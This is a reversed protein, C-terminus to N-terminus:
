QENEVLVDRLVRAFHQANARDILTHHTGPVRCVKLPGSVFRKWFPELTLNSDGVLFLVVRGNYRSPRYQQVLTTFYDDHPVSGPDRVLHRQAAWLKGAMFRVRDKVPLASWRHFHLRLRHRFFPLLVQVRLHWPLRFFPETDLLALTAVSAGNRALAQAVAFAIWGGASNGIIHYPGDPQRSRVESAYHGAMEEITRHRPQVGDLGVAQVGFVPRDPAMARALELFVFADGGWGHVCFLPVAAGHPQLPV